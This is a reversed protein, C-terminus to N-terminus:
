IADIVGWGELNEDSKLWGLNVSFGAAMFISLAAQNQDMAEIKWDNVQIVIDGPQIGVKAAASFMAVKNVALELRGNEVRYVLSLGWKEKMSGRKMEKVVDPERTKIKGTILKPKTTKAKIVAESYPHFKFKPHVTIPKILDNLFEKPYNLEEELAERIQFKTRPAPCSLKRTILPSPNEFAPVSIRRFTKGPIPVIGSNRYCPISDEQYNLDSKKRNCADDWWLM